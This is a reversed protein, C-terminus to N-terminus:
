NTVQLCIAGLCIGRQQMHHVFIRYFSGGGWTTLISHMPTKDLMAKFWYLIEKTFFLLFLFIFM